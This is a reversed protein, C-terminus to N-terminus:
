AETGGGPTTEEPLALIDTCNNTLRTFGLDKLRTQGQYLLYVDDELETEYADTKQYQKGNLEVYNHLLMAAIAEHTASDLHDTKFDAVRELKGTGIFRTNRNRDEYTSVTEVPRAPTLLADLRFQNYFTTAGEYPYGFQDASHRFKAFVTPLPNYNAIRVPNSILWVEKGYIDPSGVTDTFSYKAIVLSYGGDPLAPVTFAASLGTDDEGLYDFTAPVRTFTNGQLLYLYISAPDGFNHTNNILFRIQDGTQMPLAYHGERGGALAICDGNLVFEKGDFSGDAPEYWRLFNVENIPEPYLYVTAM